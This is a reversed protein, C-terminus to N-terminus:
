PQTVATIAKELRTIRIGTGPSHEQAVAHMGVKEYFPVSSVTSTVLMRSHGARFIAQEAVAFLERGIGCGHKAPLIHIQTLTDRWVSVFGVVQGDIEAVWCQQKEARGRVNEPTIEALLKEAQAPTWSERPALYYYSERHIACVNEYDTPAIPRVVPQSNSDVSLFERSAGTSGTLTFCTRAIPVDETAYGLTWGNKRALRICELLALGGGGLTGPIRVRGSPGTHQGRQEMVRCRTEDYHQFREELQVRDAIAPIGINMARIEFVRNRQVLAIEVSVLPVGPIASRGSRRTVLAANLFLEVLIWELTGSVDEPVHERLVRVAPQLVTRSFEVAASQDGVAHAQVIGAIDPTFVRKVTSCPEALYSERRM